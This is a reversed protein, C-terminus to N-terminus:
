FGGPTCQATGTGLKVCARAITGTGDAATQTFAWDTAPAKSSLVFSRSVTTWTVGGDASTQEYGTCKAGFAVFFGDALTTAKKAITTTSVYAFCESSATGVIVRARLYSLQVPFGASPATSAKLSVGSTCYVRTATGVRFCVRAKLKPGDKQEGLKVWGTFGAVSPARVVPSSNSWTKGSNASRQLWGTCAKGAHINELYGSVFAPGTPKVQESLLVVACSSGNSPNTTHSTDAVVTYSINAIASAPRALATAAGGLVLGAAAVATVAATIARPRM